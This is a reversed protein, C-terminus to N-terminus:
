RSPLYWGTEIRAVTDLQNIGHDVESKRSYDLFVPEREVVEHVAAAVSV